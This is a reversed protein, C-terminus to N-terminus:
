PLKGLSIKFKYVQFYEIQHAATPVKMCDVTNMLFKLWSLYKNIKITINKTVNIETWIEKRRLVLFIAWVDSAKFSISLVDCPKLVKPYPGLYGDVEKILFCAHKGGIRCLLLFGSTYVAGWVQEVNEEWRM